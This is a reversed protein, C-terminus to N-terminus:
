RERIGRSCIVMRNTWLNNGQAPTNGRVNERVLSSSVSRPLTGGLTNWECEKEHSLLQNAEGRM